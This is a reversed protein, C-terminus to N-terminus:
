ILEKVISREYVPECFGGTCNWSDIGNEIPIISFVCVRTMGNKMPLLRALETEVVLCKIDKRGFSTKLEDNCLDDIIISEFVLAFGGFLLASLFAIGCIKEM